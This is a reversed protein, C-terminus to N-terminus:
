PYQALVSAVSIHKKRTIAFLTPYLEKLSFNGMWRDEWFKVNKGNCLHVRGLNLFSEKVKM